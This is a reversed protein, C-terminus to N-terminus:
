KSPGKSYLLVKGLMHMCVGPAVKCWGKVWITKALNDIKATCLNPSFYKQVALTSKYQFIFFIYRSMDCLDVSESGSNLHVHIVDAIESPSERDQVAITTIGRALIAKPRLLYSFHRLMMMNYEFQGRGSNTKELRKLDEM